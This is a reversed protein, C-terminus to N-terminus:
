SLRPKLCFRPKSLSEMALRLRCRVIQIGILWLEHLGHKSGDLMHLKKGKKSNNRKIIFYLTTYYM